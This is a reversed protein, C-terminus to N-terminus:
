VEDIRIKRVYFSIDLRRTRIAPDAAKLGITYVGPETPRWRYEWLSWTKHTAPTPCITLPRPSDNPAFRILLRDVPRDGGWAIGVICYELRGDVRRKEVRVPTAAFDIVPPAYDRAFQPSGNQHTRVAFERMQSTVPEDAGVFSIEEVWKIWSCGYWGPVVLRVPAGHDATLLEGNMRVALFPASNGQLMEM